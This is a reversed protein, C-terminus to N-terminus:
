TAASWEFLRSDPSMWQPTLTSGDVIPVRMLLCYSQSDGFRSRLYQANRERFRADTLARVVGYTGRGYMGLCISVTRECNFPNVAQAFLGVDYLLISRGDPSKEFVPRHRFVEGDDDQVEFYVEDDDPGQGRWNAVMKVPLHLDRLLSRTAPNWDTGGVSILHSSYADPTLDHALKIDVSSLPNAARLHGYLEVLADLDSYTYLAIYDPDDPDAYVQKARMDPPLQACVLTIPEEDGFRWPGTQISRSVQGGDAVAIGPESMRRPQGSESAAKNLADNRLRTLEQRLDEKRSREAETMEDASLLRPQPGDFCRPTAFAAAYLEIWRVAPIKPATASEWGSILPVSIPKSGGLALALQHQTIRRGPWHEERLARLRQALILRPDDNL